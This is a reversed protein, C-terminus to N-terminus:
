RNRGAALRREMALSYRSMGFCFVFYFMAAFLYGTTSITPGAWEPDLRATDVTRLFDFIGVIAVLTTDKFLGIFTNVIGPIVITLAQPLVILRMMQPYRLGLAQAAEFQGRPIANLGGRVVEAMYASAFLAVGILPRVLRDPSFQEPVFLPLMTNAMFLVTILPVGRVFEIFGISFLRVAPLRSRRGLALLVGGPLSFVMGVLAVLLSVFIGGWLHTPVQTLGLAPTGYLLVFALVPYVVFFLIAGLGKRPSAPWLLWAILVAGILLTIDVRWREEVPYSGYVFYPLKRAVYAWCAGVGPPRCAAGDLASWVADIVMYRILDIGFWIAIAAAVLTLISTWVDRFLNRRVWGIVGGVAVPPPKEPAAETRVFFTDDLSDQIASM